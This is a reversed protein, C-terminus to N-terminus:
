AQTLGAAESESGCPSPQPTSYYLALKSIRNSEGKHERCNSRCGHLRGQALPSTRNTPSWSLLPASGTSTSIEPSCGKRILAAPGDEGPPSVPVRPPPRATTPAALATCAPVRAAAKARTELPTTGPLQLLGLIRIYLRHLPPHQRAPTRGPGPLPIADTGTVPSTRRPTERAGNSRHGHARRDRAHGAPTAAGCRRITTGPHRDGLGGGPRRRGTQHQFLQGRRKCGGNQLRHGCPLAPLLVVGDGAAM